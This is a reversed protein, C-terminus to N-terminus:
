RSKSKSVTNKFFVSNTNPEMGGNAVILGAYGAYESLELLITNDKPQFASAQPLKPVETETDVVLASAAAVAKDGAPQLTAPTPAVAGQGQGSKTNQTAVVPPQILQKPALKNWWKWTGFGAIGLILLTLVFKGRATM